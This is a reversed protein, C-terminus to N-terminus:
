GSKIFQILFSSFLGETQFWLNWIINQDREILKFPNRTIVWHTLPNGTYNRNLGVGILKHTGQTPILATLATLQPEMFPWVYGISCSPCWSDIFFRHRSEANELRNETNQTRTECLSIRLIINAVFNGTSDLIINLLLLYKDELTM